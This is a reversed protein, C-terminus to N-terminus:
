QEAVVLGHARGIDCVPTGDGDVHDFRQVNIKIGNHEVDARFAM